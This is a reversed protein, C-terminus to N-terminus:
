KTPAVPVLVIRRAFELGDFKGAQLSAASFEYEGKPYPQQDDQLQLGFPLPFDNDRMVAAKQTRFTLSPKGDRAALTRSSVDGNLIQVKMIHNEM